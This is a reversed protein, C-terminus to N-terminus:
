SRSEDNVNSVPNLRTESCQSFELLHEISVYWVARVYVRVKTRLAICINGNRPTGVGECCVRRSFGKERDNREGRVRLSLLWWWTM